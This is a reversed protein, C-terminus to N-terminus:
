REAAQQRLWGGLKKDPGTVHQRLWTELMSALREPAGPQDRVAAAETVRRAFQEHEWAHAEVYPYGRTRMLNEECRFHVAVYDLAFEFLQDVEERSAGERVAQSFRRATGFLVKHQADITPEGLELAPDWEPAPEAPAPEPPAGEAPALRPLRLGDLWARLEAFAQLRVVGSATEPWSGLGALAIPTANRQGVEALERVLRALFAPDADASANVLIGAARERVLEMALEHATAPGALRPQWGAEAAVLEALAAGHQLRDGPTTAVLLSPRGAAPTTPDALGGLAVRLRELTALWQVATIAGAQRRRHLEIIAPRLADGFAPWSGAERRGRVALGALEAVTGARLLEDALGAAPTPGTSPPAALVELTARSFRRHGGETRESAVLGAQAWRKLTAVSIKLMAAAESTTLFKRTAAPQRM